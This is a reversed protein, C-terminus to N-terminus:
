KTPKNSMGSNKKGGTGHEGHWGSPKGETKYSETEGTEKAVGGSQKTPRNTDKTTDEGHGVDGLDNSTKTESPSNKQHGKTKTTNVYSDSGVETFEESLVDEIIKMLKPKISSM